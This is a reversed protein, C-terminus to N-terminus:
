NRSDVESRDREVKGWARRIRNQIEEVSGVGDIEKLLGKKRYHGILPGTQKKYVRLRARITEERDDERQYLEGECRDCIGKKVPAQFIVHYLAGCRRCSRRGELRQVILRQSVKLSFVCDLGLGMDKLITELGDAQDLTRPFGDLIFGKRCDDQRLRDAIVTVMLADPVLAGKAMFESAKKGLPTEEKVAKRLIDGTSVQCAGFEETLLKAQTGKGAGPPGLFLVRM